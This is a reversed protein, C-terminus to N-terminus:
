SNAYRVNASVVSAITNFYLYGPGKTHKVEALHDGQFKNRIVSQSGSWGGLVIEVSEESNAPSILTLIMNYLTRSIFCYLTKNYWVLFYPIRELKSQKSIEFGPSTESLVIHIDNDAVVSFRPRNKISEKILDYFFLKM